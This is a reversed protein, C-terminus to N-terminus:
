TGLGTRKSSRNATKSRSTFGAAAVGLTGAGTGSSRSFSSPASRGHIFSEYALNGFHKQAVTGAPEAVDALRDFAAIGRFQMHRRIQELIGDTVEVKSPGVLWMGRVSQCSRWTRLPLRESTRSSAKSVVQFLGELFRELDRVPCACKLGPLGDYVGESAPASSSLKEREAESLPRPHPSGPLPKAFGPSVSCDEARYTRYNNGLKSIMGHAGDFLM